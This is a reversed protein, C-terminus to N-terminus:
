DAKEIYGTTPLLYMDDSVIEYKGGWDHDTFGLDARYIDGTETDYVREYGLNADSQKQSVIDYTSQRSNWGSTIIDSTQSGIRAINASAQSLIDESKYFTSVFSDSFEITGVCYNLVNEWEILRGEPVTFFVTNYVNVATVYYLSIPLPTATFIGEVLEGNEDSYYARLIDGGTMNKGLKEVTTFDNISPSFFDATDSQRAARTYIKYFQEATQPNIAPLKAFPTSPYLSAYWAREKESSLYGETKMNFYICFNKNEPDEVMFTYHIVDADPHVTVVWGKPIAMSFLGNDFKEFEMNRTESYTIKVQEKGFLGGLWGSLNGPDYSTAIGIVVVAVALLSLGSILIIKAKKSM